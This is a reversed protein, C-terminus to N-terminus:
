SDQSCRVGEPEHVGTTIVNDVSHGHGAHFRILFFSTKGLKYYDLIPVNQLIYEAMDSEPNHSSRWIRVLNRSWTSDLYM